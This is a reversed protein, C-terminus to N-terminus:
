TNKKHQLNLYCILIVLIFAYIKLRIDEKHNDTKNSIM